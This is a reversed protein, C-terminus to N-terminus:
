FGPCIVARDRLEEGAEEREEEDMREDCWFRYFQGTNKALPNLAEKEDEDADFLRTLWGIWWEREDGEEEPVFETWLYERLIEETYELREEADDWDRQGSPLRTLVFHQGFDRLVEYVDEDIEMERSFNWVYDYYPQFEERDSHLYDAKKRVETLFPEPFGAVTQFLPGVGNEDVEDPLWDPGDVLEWDDNWDSDRVILAVMLPDNMGLRAGEWIGSGRYARRISVSPEIVWPELDGVEEEGHERWNPDGVAFADADQDTIDVGPERIAINGYWRPGIYCRYFFMEPVDEGTDPPRQIDNNVCFGGDSVTARLDEFNFQNRDAIDVVIGSITSFGLASDVELLVQEDGRQDEAIIQQVDGDDRIELDREGRDDPIDIVHHEPDLPEGGERVEGQPSPINGGGPLRGRAQSLSRVPDDWFLISSMTVTETDGRANEWSGTIRVARAQGSLDLDDDDAVVFDFNANTGTFEEELLQQATEFDEASLSGRIRDLRSEMVQVAEARAKSDSTAVMLDGYLRTLGLIGFGIVALAVLAELLTIGRIKRDPNSTMRTVGGPATTQDHGTNPDVSVPKPFLRFADIRRM